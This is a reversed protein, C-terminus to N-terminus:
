ALGAFALMAARGALMLRSRFLLVALRPAPRMVPLSTGGSLPFLSAPLVLAACGVLSLRAGLGLMFAM